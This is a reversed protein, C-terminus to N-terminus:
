TFKRNEFLCSLIIQFSIIILKKDGGGGGGFDGVGCVCDRQRM